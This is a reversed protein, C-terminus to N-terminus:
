NIDINETLYQSDKACDAVDMRTGVGDPLRAIADRVISIVNVMGPRDPKLVIHEKAKTALQGRKRLVPAVATYKGDITEYRWAKGPNKYREEEQRRFREIYDESRPKITLPLKAFLKIEKFRGSKMIGEINIENEAAELAAL